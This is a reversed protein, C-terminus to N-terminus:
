KRSFGCLNQRLITSDMQSNLYKKNMRVCLFCFVLFIVLMYRSYIFPEKYEGVILFVILLYAVIRKRKDKIYYASLLATVLLVLYHMIALLLGMAAYARFFGGDANIRIGDGSVGSVIGIGWITNWNLEPIYTTDHYYYDAFFADYLGNEKIRLLRHFISPLQSYLGTLYIFCAVLGLALLLSFFVKLFSKNKIFISSIFLVVIGVLSLVLGTRAVATMVFSFVLYMISYFLINRKHIIKYVCAILGLSLGMAGTSTICAIGAAYGEIRKIPYNFFSNQNFVNDVFSGFDHSFLCLAIVVCQFFVIIFLSDILQNADDFFLTLLIYLSGGFILFNAIVEILSEGTGRGRVLLIVCTYAFLFIQFRVIKIATRNISNSSNFSVKKSFIVAVAFFLLVVALRETSLFSLSKFLVNNFVIMFLIVPGLFLKLPSQRHRANNKSFSMDNM